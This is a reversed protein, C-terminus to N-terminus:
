VNWEGIMVKGRGRCEGTKREKREGERGGSRGGQVGERGGGSVGV